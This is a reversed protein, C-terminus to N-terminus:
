RSANLSQRITEVLRAAKVLQEETPVHRGWRIRYYLGIVYAVPEAPVGVAEVEATLESLTQDPRLELGRMALLKLLEPVFAIKKPSLPLVGRAQKRERLYRRTWRSVLMGEVILGLVGTAIALNALAKDVIGHFMLNRFSVRLITLYRKVAKWARRRSLVDYGVVNEYWMFRVNDWWRRVPAGWVRRHARRGEPPSPDFIIWDTSPTFVETWAHADRGRVVYHGADSDYESLVFGAALRARVGVSRCMVALASAFYECHGRKMNFLFDEVGDVSPDVGTLDLTYSCRQKLKKTMRRAIELNLEDALGPQSARRALLDECWQEALNKVKPTVTVAGGPNPGMMGGFYERMRRLYRLGADSLPSTLCYAKYRVYGVPSRRSVVVISQDRRIIASEGAEAVAVVPYSAFLHPLLDPSMRVEEVMADALLAPSPAPLPQDSSPRIDAVGSRSWRSDAYRDFSAGRLYNASVPLAMPLPLDVSVTMKIATSKYIPGTVDGLTVVGTFGTAAHQKGTGVSGGRGIPLYKPDVFQERPFVFFVLVGLSLVTAMIFQGTRRLAPGPWRRGVNWAAQGVEVPSSDTALRGSAVADLGRKLTLVMATHCLLVLYVILAGAFWPDNTVMAAAIMLLASMSIMQVYDRNRKQQFLKCLQLLILYHGWAQLLTLSSSFAEIALVLTAMAAGVGIFVRHLYVEKSRLVAFINVAVGLTAAMLYFWQGEALSFTAASVWVTWVLPWDMRPRETLIVETPSFSSLPM